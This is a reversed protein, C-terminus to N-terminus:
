CCRCSSDPGKADLRLEKLMWAQANETNSFPVSTIGGTCFLAVYVLVQHRTAHGVFRRGFTGRSDLVQYGVGMQLDKPSYTTLDEENLLTPFSLRTSIRQVQDHLTNFAASPMALSNRTEEPVSCNTAFGIFLPCLIITQTM